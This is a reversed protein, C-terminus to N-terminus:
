LIEVRCTELMLLVPVRERRGEKQVESSNNCSQCLIPVQCNIDLCSLAHQLLVQMTM